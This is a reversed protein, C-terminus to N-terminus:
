KMGSQNGWSCFSTPSSQNIKLPIGCRWTDMIVALAKVPHSHVGLQGERPSLAKTWLPLWAKQYFAKYFTLQSPKSHVPRTIDCTGEWRLIRPFQPNDHCSGVPIFCKQTLRRWASPQDSPDHGSLLILRNPLLSRFHWTLNLNDATQKDVLFCPSIHAPNELQVM